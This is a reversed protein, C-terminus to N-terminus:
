REDRAKRRLWALAERRTAIEGDDRAEAIRYPSPRECVVSSTAFESGDISTTPGVLRRRRVLDSVRSGM